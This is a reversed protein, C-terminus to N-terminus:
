PSQFRIDARQGDLMGSARGRGTPSLRVRLRGAPVGSGALRVTGSVIGTNGSALLGSVRADRVVRVASLGVSGDRRLSYRGGRLARASGWPEYVTAQEQM